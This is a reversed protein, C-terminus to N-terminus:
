RMAGQLTLTRAYLGMTAAGEWQVDVTHSGAAVAKSVTAGMLPQLNAGMLNTGFAVAGDIFITIGWQAAGSAFGQLGSFSVLLAGDTPMYISATMVTQPSGTGTIQASASVPVPITVANGAITLTGVAANGIYASGIAAAEMFSSITGANIKSLKNVFDATGMYGFGPLWVHTGIDVSNREALSGFVPKNIVRNWDLGTGASFVVNGYIDKIELGKTDIYQAKVQGNEVIFSGAEDRLKSFTLSNIVAQDIFTEGGVIIFPKRMNAGTRGVWFSDVDFGAQVTTGDNYTGFGGILGNVNLKITYLAGLQVTKNDVTNINTQLTQQVSVLNDNAESQVTTIQHALASDADTRATTETQIAAANENTAAFVSDVRQGLADDATVRALRETEILAANDRNAAAVMDIQAAMANDGDVRAGQETQIAALAGDVNGQIESLTVSLGDDGALRNQIEAMLDQRNLTIRDIEAKLSQALTGADIQGTLQQILDAILPRATASAPGIPDGVTGNVSVIQIWYYYTTGTDLKDYFSNGGKEGLPLALTFDPTVGRYLLVYAVAYPNTTPYTWSVDIGGFAPVASLV